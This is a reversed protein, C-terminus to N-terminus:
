AAVLSNVTAQRFNFIRLTMAPIANVLCGFMSLTFDFVRLGHGGALKIQCADSQVADNRSLQFQCM